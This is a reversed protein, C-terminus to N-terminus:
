ITTLAILDADSLRTKFIMASQVKKAEQGQFYPSNMVTLDALAGTFAFPTTNTAIKVGNVFLATDGTKYAIAIKANGVFASSTISIDSSGYRIKGIIGNTANKLIAVTNVISRNFYILDDNIKTTEGEWYLVGETQGILSTLGTTVSADAVRTVATTTTPIYSTPYSGLESQAAALELTSGIPVSAGGGYADNITNSFYIRTSTISSNFYASIKYWGNGLYSIFSSPTLTGKSGLTGNNIDFNAYAASSGFNLIQVFDWNGKKVFFTQTNNSSSVSTALNAGFATSTILFSNKGDLISPAYLSTLTCNSKTWAANSFDESYTILNTRQPELLLKGCGGGTYDIRPINSASTGDQTIGAFTTRASTTTPIYETATSGQELQAGWIYMFKSTDGVYTNNYSTGTTWQTSAMCVGVYATTAGFTFTSKLLYWDNGVNTISSNTISYGSGQAFQYLLTGNDLNFFAIAGNTTNFFAELGCYSRNGKKVYMSVTYSQGVVVSTGSSPFVGHTTNAVSENIQDATLTGNPANITNATLTVANKQWYANDFEESYLVLNTRPSEILGDSNVRTASSARTFDLDGSGDTPKLSYATGAKYGSPYYILSADAYTSM